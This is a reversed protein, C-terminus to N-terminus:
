SVSNSGLFECLPLLFGVTGHPDSCSQQTQEKRGRNHRLFQVWITPWHKLGDHRINRWKKIRSIKKIKCLISHFICFYMWYKMGTGTWACEVIPHDRMWTERRERGGEKGRQKRVLNCCDTDVKLATDSGTTKCNSLLVPKQIHWM